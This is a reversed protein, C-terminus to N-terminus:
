SPASESLVKLFDFIADSDDRHFYPLPCQAVPEAAILAVINDDKLYLPAEGLAPDFIELKPIPEYKFGEVLVWDSPALRALLHALEPRQPKSHETFLASRRDSAILVQQAGAKRHRWSDKGEIDADFAHHAHKISAICLSQQAARAIIQEALTTKGSGSFGAFGFIFPTKREGNHATM